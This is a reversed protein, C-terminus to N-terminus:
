PNETKYVAWAAWQAIIAVALWLSQNRPTIQTWRGQWNYQRPNWGPAPKLTYHTIYRPVHMDQDWGDLDTSLALYTVNKANRVTNIVATSPKGPLGICGDLLLIQGGQEVWGDMDAPRVRPSTPFVPPVWNWLWIGGTLIAVDRVQTAPPEPYNM